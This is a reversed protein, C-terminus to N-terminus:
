TELAIYGREIAHMLAEFALRAEDYTERWRKLDALDSDQYVEGKSKEALSFALELYRTRIRAVLVALPLIKAANLAPLRQHIVERNALAIAQEIEKAFHAYNKLDTKM